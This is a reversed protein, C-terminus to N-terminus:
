RSQRTCHSIYRSPLEYRSHGTFRISYWMKRCTEFQADNLGPFFCEVLDYRLICIIDTETHPVLCKQEGDRKLRMKPLDFCNHECCCLRPYM